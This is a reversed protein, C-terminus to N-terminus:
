DPEDMGPADDKQQAVGVPATDLLQAARRGGGGGQWGPTPHPLRPAAQGDREGGHPPERWGFLGGARPRGGLVVPGVLYAVVPPQPDLMAVPPALAAAHDFVPAPPPLRADTIEHQCQATGQGIDPPAQVGPQGHNFRSLSLHLTPDDGPQYPG